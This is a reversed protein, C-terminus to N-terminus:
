QKICPCVNVRQSLCSVCGKVVRNRMPTRLDDAHQKLTACVGLQTTPCTLRRVLQGLMKVVVLNLRQQM